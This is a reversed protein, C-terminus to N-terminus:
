HPTAPASPQIHGRWLLWATMYGWLGFMREIFSVFSLDTPASGNTAALITGIGLIAGAGVVVHGGILLVLTAFTGAIGVSGLIRLTRQRHLFAVSWLLIATLIFATYLLYYRGLVENSVGLIIQTKAAIALAFFIFGARNLPKQIGMEDCFAWIAFASLTISLLRLPALPAAFHSLLLIAFSAAALAIAGVKANPTTARPAAFPVV